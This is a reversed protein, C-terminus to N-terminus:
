LSLQSYSKISISLEPSSNALTQLKPVLDFNAGSNLCQHHLKGKDRSISDVKSSNELTIFKLKRPM